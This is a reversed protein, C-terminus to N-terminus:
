KKKVTPKRVAKKKTALSDFDQKLPEYLHKKANPQLNSGASYANGYEKVGKPTSVTSTFKKDYYLPSIKTYTTDMGTGWDNKTINRVVKEGHSGKVTKTSEKEKKKNKIM